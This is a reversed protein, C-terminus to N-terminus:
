KSNEKSFALLIKRERAIQAELEQIRRSNRANERKRYVIEQQQIKIKQILFDKNNQSDTTNLAVQRHLFKNNLVEIQQEIYSILGNVTIDDEIYGYQLDESCVINFRNEIDSFIEAVDLSDAGLKRLGTNYDIADPKIDLIDAIIDTLQTTIYERTM